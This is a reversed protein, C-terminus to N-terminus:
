SKYFRADEYYTKAVAFPNNNAQINRTRRTIPVQHMPSIYSGVTDITVFFEDVDVIKEFHTKILLKLSNVKTSGKWLSAVISIGRPSGIVLLTRKPLINMALTKDVM